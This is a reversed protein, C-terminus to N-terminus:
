DWNCRDLLNIEEEDDNSWGDAYEDCNCVDDHSHLTGHPCEWDCTMEYEIPSYEEFITEELIYYSGIGEYNLLDDLYKDADERNIFMKRNHPAYYDDTYEKWHATYIKM